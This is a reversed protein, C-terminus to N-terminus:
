SASAEREKTRQAFAPSLLHSYYPSQSRLVLSYDESLNSKQFGININAANRKALRFRSKGISFEIKQEM